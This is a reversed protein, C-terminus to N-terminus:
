DDKGGVGLVECWKAAVGQSDNEVQRGEVRAKFADYWPWFENSDFKKMSPGNSYHLKAALAMEPIERLLAAPWQYLYVFPGRNQGVRQQWEEISHIFEEDSILQVASM